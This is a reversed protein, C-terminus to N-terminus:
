HYVERRKQNLAKPGSIRYDNIWKCLMSPNNIGVQMSLEQYSMETTLDLEEVHIMFDFTYTEKKRSRGVGDDGFAKYTNIWNRLVKLILFNM